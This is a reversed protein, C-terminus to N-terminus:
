LSADFELKLRVDGFKLNMVGGEDDYPVSVDALKQKKTENYVHININQQPLLKV